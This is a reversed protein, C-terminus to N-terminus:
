PNVSWKEVEMEVEEEEGYREQIAGVLRDRSGNVRDLDDGTLESWKEKAHAKLENWIM